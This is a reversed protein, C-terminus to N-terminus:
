KLRFVEMEKKLVEIEEFLTNLSVSVEDMDKVTSNGIANIKDMAAVISDNLKNQNLVAM